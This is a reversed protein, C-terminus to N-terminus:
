ISQNKQHVYGLSRDARPNMSGYGLSLVSSNCSQIKFMMERTREICFSICDVIFAAIEKTLTKYGSYDSIIINISQRKKFGM